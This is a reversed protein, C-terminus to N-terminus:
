KKNSLSYVCLNIKINADWRKPGEKFVGIQELRKDLSSM